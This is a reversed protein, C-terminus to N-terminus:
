KRDEIVSDPRKVGAIKWGIVVRIIDRNTRAEQPSILAASSVTVATASLGHRIDDLESSASQIQEELDQVRKAIQSLRSIEGVDHRKSAINIKEMIESLVSGKM